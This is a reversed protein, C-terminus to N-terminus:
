GQRKSMSEENKNEQIRKLERRFLRFVSFWSKNEIRNSEIRNIHLKLNLHIADRLYTTKKLSFFHIFEILM